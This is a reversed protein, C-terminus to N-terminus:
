AEGRWAVARATDLPVDRIIFPLDPDVTWGRRDYLMACAEPHDDPVQLRWPRPQLHPRVPLRKRIRSFTTDDLLSPSLGVCTPCCCRDGTM